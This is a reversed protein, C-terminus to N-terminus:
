SLDDLDDFPQVNEFSMETELSDTQPFATATNNIGNNEKPVPKTIAISENKKRRQMARRVAKTKGQAQEEMERMKGYASFIMREDINSKHEQKLQRNIERLEWISMVPHSSDRYPIAFYSNLEPDFFWIVSLDRPDFRFVFQRARKPNGPETAGIWTRLVDHWYHIKHISVGYQQVTRMEFPMFDLRFKTEDLVKPPMGTGPLSDTGFIGEKYKAMPSMGLASHMRQHYVGTIFTTLWKEFESLTFVASDESDYNRREVVNSFTTGPLTHIEQLVTGLLREIHGGFHPRAVPRWEIDIGYQKCAKELVKGHFERANDLHIKRPLGWCPWLGEVEHQALWKEKTLVSHALCLGASLASPPDFSIYFGPIMRSFVDVAMTIWPRGIPKRYVDDVLIIDLKTHDIQIVALPFDANPFSGKSPKFQEEAAKKGQRKAIKFQPDLKSIRARITNNHPYALGVDLCQRKIENIIQQVPKKQKTLYEKEIVSQVIEEVNSDIRYCGKDKRYQKFLGTLLGTEHYQRLWRYITNAHVGFQAAREEVAKKTRKKDDLLPKIIEFRKTATAWEQADITSLDQASPPENTISSLEAVKVQYTKRSEVETLLVTDLDVIDTIVCCIGNFEVMAGPRIDLVAKGTNM